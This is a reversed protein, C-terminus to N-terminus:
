TARGGEFPFSGDELAGVRTVIEFDISASTRELGSDSSVCSSLNM